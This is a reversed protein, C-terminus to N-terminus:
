PGNRLFEIFEKPRKLIDRVMRFSRDLDAFIYEDITEAYKVYRWVVLEHESIVRKTRGEAQKNQELDRDYGLFYSYQCTELDFSEAYQITCVMIGRVDKFHQVRRDQEENGIGGMMGVADYNRLTLEEVVADVADRFPVFIVAHQVEEIQDMITEFGGGMDLAPDIIRPCCLLKRLLIYKHLVTGAIVMEGSEEIIALMEESIQKYVRAQSRTMEVDLLQRSGEPQEDAVVEEPIYVMYQDMVKQFQDLNKIGVVEAGFLGDVIECFTNMYRWYSTFVKPKITQFATFISRPDKNVSSGTTLILREMHRTLAKVRNFTTSKRRRMFKHYEDAIFISWKVQRVVQYDLRFCAANTIYIGMGSKKAESWVAMRKAKSSGKGGAIHIMGRLDAGSWQPVQRKWAAIAPGTCVIIIPGYPFMNKGHAGPVLVGMEVLAEVVPRTKGAGPAAILVTRLLRGIKDRAWVQYRFPKPLKM